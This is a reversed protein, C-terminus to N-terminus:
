LTQTLDEKISVYDTGVIKANRIEINELQNFKIKLNITPMKEDFIDPAYDNRFYWYGFRDTLCGKWNFCNLILPHKNFM